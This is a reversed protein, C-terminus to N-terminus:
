LISKQFKEDDAQGFIKIKDFLNNNNYNILFIKSM